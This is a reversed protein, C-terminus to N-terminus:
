IPRRCYINIFYDWPLNKLDSTKHTYFDQLGDPTVVFINFGLSAIKELFKAPMTGAASLWSPAFEFVLQIPRNNKLIELMGELATSEWGEIDMKILDVKKVGEKSLISDLDSTPVSIKRISVNGPPINAVLSHLGSKGECHYFSVTGPRDSIAIPYRKVGYLHKTNRELLEFNEPDAEFAYVVGEKGVLRSFIRSYYGIHAGIDVVVMGPRVIKKFLDTTEKEYRWFLFDRKWQWIYKKPFSFKQVWGIYDMLGNLIRRLFKKLLIIM